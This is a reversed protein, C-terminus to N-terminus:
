ASWVLLNGPQLVFSKRIADLDTWPRPSKSSDEDCDFHHAFPQDSLTEPQQAACKRCIVIGGQIRWRRNWDVLKESPTM